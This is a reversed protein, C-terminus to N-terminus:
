YHSSEKSYYLTCSVIVIVVICCVIWLIREWLHGSVGVLLNYVNWIFWIITGFLIVWLVIGLTSEENDGKKAVKSSEEYEVNYKGFSTANCTITDDEDNSSFIGGKKELNLYLGEGAFYVRTDNSYQELASLTDAVIYCGEIVDDLEEVEFCLDGDADLGVSMIFFPYEGDLWIAVERDWSKKEYKKLEEIIEGVTTLRINNNTKMHNKTHSDCFSICRLLSKSDGKLIYM